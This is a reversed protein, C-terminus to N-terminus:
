GDQTSIRREMRGCTTSACLREFGDQLKREKAEASSRPQCRCGNGSSNIQPPQDTSPDLWRYKCSEKLSVVNVFMVEARVHQGEAEVPISM